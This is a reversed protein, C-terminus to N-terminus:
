QLTPFYWGSVTNSRLCFLSSKIWVKHCYKQNQITFIGWSYSDPVCFLMFQLDAGTVPMRYRSSSPESPLSQFWRESVCRRAAHSRTSSVAPSSTPQGGHGAAFSRTTHSAVLCRGSHWRVQATHERLSQPKHARTCLCLTIIAMLWHQPILFAFALSFERLGPQSTASMTDPVAPTPSLYSYDHTKM